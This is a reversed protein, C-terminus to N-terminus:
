SKTIEKILEMIKPCNKYMLNAWEVTKDEYHVRAIPFGFENNRLYVDIVFYVSDYLVYYSLDKGIRNNLDCLSQWEYAVERATSSVYSSEKEKHFENFLEILRERFLEETM